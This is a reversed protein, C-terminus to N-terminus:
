RQAVWMFARGAAFDGVEIYARRVTAGQRTNFLFEVEVAERPDLRALAEAAGIPFRFAVSPASGSPRILADPEFRAEALWTRTAARPTVRASLPLKGSATPTARTDLYPQRSRSSDRMVIRAAYPEAGDAFRAVGILEVQNGKATLGFTLRDRGEAGLSVQQSLNWVRGSASRHRSANWDVIEGPYRMRQLKEYDQFADKARDAVMRLDASDCPERRARTRARIEAEDLAQASVGSRLAAGRAQQAAANLASLIPPEFLNCRAGAASVLTREYFLDTPACWAACSLLLALTIGGIAARLGSAREM